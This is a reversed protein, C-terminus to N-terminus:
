RRPEVHWSGGRVRSMIEAFQLVHRPQAGHDHPDRVRSSDGMLSGTSYTLVQITEYRRLTEPLAGVLDAAIDTGTTTYEALAPAPPQAPQAPVTIVPLRSYAHVVRQAWAGMRIGRGVTAAHAARDDRDAIAQQLELAVTEPTVDEPGEAQGVPPERGTITRYDGPHVQYEDRLGILHGYEHPITESAARDELFWEGANARGRGTKVDVVCADGGTGRIMEFDLDVSDLVSEEGAVGASRVLRFRNWASRVHGFWDSRPPNSRFDVKVTVLMRNGSVRWSYKSADEGGMGTEEGGQHQTWQRDVYGVTTAPADVDLHEWTPLTGVGSPDLGKSSQYDRTAAATREGWIGDEAIPEAGAGARVINLKQQFEEVAPGRTLGGPGVVRHLSTGPTQVGLADGLGRHVHAEVGGTFGGEPVVRELADWTDQDVVGTSATGMIERQFREVAVMTSVEFIADIALPPDAMGTVNLRQQLLGVQEGEDGLFLLIAPVVSQAARLAAWTLPGIIGDPVLDHARQFAVTAARTLPGFIGDTALPPAAGAGNLLGQAEAVAPGRSGSRVMPRDTDARPAAPSAGEPALGEDPGTIRETDDLRQLGGDALLQGVARNGALRQLALLGGTQDHRAADAGSTPM